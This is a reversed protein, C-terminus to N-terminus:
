PGSWPRLETRLRALARRWRRKVTSLSCGIRRTIERSSLEELLRAEAVERECADLEDLADAVDRRICVRRYLRWGAESGKVSQLPLSGAEELPETRRVWEYRRCNRAENKVVELLSPLLGREGDRLEVEESLVKALADHVIDPAHDPEPGHLRAVGLLDTWHDRVIREIRDALGPDPAGAPVSGM